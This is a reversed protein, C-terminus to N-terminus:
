VIMSKAARQTAPSGTAAVSTVSAAHAFSIRQVFVVQPALRVPHDRDRPPQNASLGAPGGSARDHSTENRDLAFRHWVSIIGPPEATYRVPQSLINPGTCLKGCTKPGISM